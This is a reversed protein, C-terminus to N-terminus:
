FVIYVLYGLYGLVFIWGQYRELIHRKGIFMFAFLLLTIFLVVFLDLFIENSITIPRILATLGLICLINFINSGIINGVAVDTQRRLGAVVTTMIEPLSTGIAVVTLGIIRQTVGLMQALFVAGQVTLYGGLALGILGGLLFLVSFFLSFEKTEYKPSEKKEVTKIAYILFAVFCFLLFVADTRSLMGMAHDFPIDIVFAVLLITAFFTYPIEKWITAKRLVVPTIIAVLGLGLAINVLNSGLINAISLETAGQFAATLNVFFEPVSTGFAVLTLGILFPPIDLRRAISVAGQVFFDAGKYLLFGGFLLALIAFLSSM